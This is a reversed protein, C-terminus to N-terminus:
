IQEILAEELPAKLGEIHRMMFSKYGTDPTDRQIISALVENAVGTSSNLKVIAPDTVLDDGFEKLLRQVFMANSWNHAENKFVHKGNITLGLEFDYVKDEELVLCAIM